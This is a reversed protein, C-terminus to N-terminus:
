ITPIDNNINKEFLTWVYQGDSTGSIQKIIYGKKAMEKIELEYSGYYNLRLLKQEM